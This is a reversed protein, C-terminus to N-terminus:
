GQKEPCVTFLFAPRKARDPEDSIIQAAKAIESPEDDLVPVMLISASFEEMAKLIEEDPYGPRMVEVTDIGEKRLAKSIDKMSARTEKELRALEDKESLGYMHVPLIGMVAVKSLTARAEGIIRGLSAKTHGTNDVSVLICGPFSIVPCLSLERLPGFRAPALIVDPRFESAVDLIEADPEGEREEIRVRQVEGLETIIARAEDLRRKAEARALEEAKFGADYDIFMASHFLSLVVARGGEEKLKGLGYRLAAKAHLTGDYAILVKM